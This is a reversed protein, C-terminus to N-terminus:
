AAYLRERRDSGPPPLIGTARYEDLRWQDDGIEGRHELGELRSVAGEVMLRDWAEPNKMRWSGVTRPKSPKSELAARRAAAREAETHARRRITAPTITPAEGRSDTARTYHDRIIWKVQDATAGALASAWLDANAENVPVRPDLQNAYTLAATAEVPTM